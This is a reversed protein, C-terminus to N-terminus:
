ADLRAYIDGSKITPDLGNILEKLQAKGFWTPSVFLASEGHSYNFRYAGLSLLLDICDYAPDKFEPTCEFSLTKIPQSLGKLVQLEFGEVDIKCFAPTGYKVILDDMRYVQVSITRDWRHKVLKPRDKVRSIWDTSMSTTGHNTSVYLEHMGQKEDLGGDFLTFRNNRGYRARLFAVCEPQPEIAVVRAGLKLFMETRNGYNAGVDFCLDDKGVFGAYLREFRHKHDQVRQYDRFKSLPKLLGVRALVDKITQRNVFQAM